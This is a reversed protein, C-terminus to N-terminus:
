LADDAELVRQDQASPYFRGRLGHLDEIGVASFRSAVWNGFSERFQENLRSRRDPYKLLYAKPLLLIDTWRVVSLGAEVADHEPLLFARPSLGRAIVELRKDKEKGKAKLVDSTAPSVPAVLVRDVSRADLDCSATLVILDRPDSQRVSVSGDDPVRTPLDDPLWYGIVGRFVDGQRISQDEVLSWWAAWDREPDTM